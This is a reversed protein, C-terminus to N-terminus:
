KKGSEPPPSRTTVTPLFPPSSESSRTTSTGFPSGSWAISAGYSELTVALIRVDGLLVSGEGGLQVFTDAGLLPRSTGGAILRDESRPRPRHITLSAGAVGPPIEVLFSGEEGALSFGSPAPASRDLATVRLGGIEVRYRDETPLRPWRYPGRERRPVLALPRLSVGDVEGRGETGFAVAQLRRVGGPLLLSTARPPEGERLYGRELELDDAVLTLRTTRVRPPADRATGQVSVDYLGPPLDLRRSIGTEGPGLLWPASALDLDIRLSAPDLPPHLTGPDWADLLALTAARADVIPTVVAGRAVALYALAGALPGFGKVRWALALAAVLTLALLATADERVVFTPLRESLRLAPALTRLLGSEGDGRNHLLRPAELALALVSAGYGALAGSLVPREPLARALALALAPLAPILFRSPPCAGGWWMSFAAGVLITAGALLGARLAERPREQALVLAGPISLLVLPAYPLLGFQRDLLLGLLGRPVHALAVDHSFLSGYAASLSARGYVLRFYLLLGSTSLALALGGLLRGARSRLLLLGAISLPLLKPHLWPLAVGLGVTGLTFALTRERRAALLFLATALAAPVEPYIAVAYFPLPPLAVLAGWALLATGRGVGTELLLSYVLAGTAAALLGMLLRVGPYGFLAYVPLIAVSLGPAHVPYITGPPSAPSMHAELTGPYFDAYARRRLASTLELTHDHLLSEAMLLYHPEDGQPGAPGPLRTGCFAYFLVALVFLRAPPPSPSSLSRRGLREGLVAGLACGLVIAITRGQFALLVAGRGSLLPVLPLLVALLALGFRAGRGLRDLLFAFLAGGALAVAGLRPLDAVGAYPGIDTPVLHVSTRATALATALAASLFLSSVLVAREPRV